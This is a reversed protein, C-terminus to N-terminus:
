PPSLFLPGHCLPSQLLDQPSQARRKQEAERSQGQAAHHDLLMLGTHGLSLLGQGGQLV